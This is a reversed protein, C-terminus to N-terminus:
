LAQFAVVMAIVVVALVVLRSLVYPVVLKRLKMRKYKPKALLGFGVYGIVALTSVIGLQPIGVFYALVACGTALALCAMAWWYCRRSQAEEILKQNQIDEDAILEDISIGFLNSLEKLSDISPYGKNTEWKSIATRTVFIKEALEDQTMQNDTRLKKLKDGFM